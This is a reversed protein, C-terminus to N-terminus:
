LRVVYFAFALGIGIGVAPLMAERWPDGFGVVGTLLGVGTGVLFGVIAMRHPSQGFGDM